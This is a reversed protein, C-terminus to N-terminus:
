PTQLLHTKNLCKNRNEESNKQRKEQEILYKLGKKRIQYFFYELHRTYRYKGVLVQAIFVFSM